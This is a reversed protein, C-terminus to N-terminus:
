LALGRSDRSNHDVALTTRARHSLLLARTAVCTVFGDASRALGALGAALLLFAALRDARRSPDFLLSNLALVFRTM